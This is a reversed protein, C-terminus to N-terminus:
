YHKSRCLYILSENLCLFAVCGCSCTSILLSLMGLDLPCKVTFRWGLALNLMVYKTLMGPPPIELDTTQQVNTRGPRPDFAPVLASFQRKLM